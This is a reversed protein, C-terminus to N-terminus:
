YLSVNPLETRSISPNDLVDRGCTLTMKSLEPRKKLEFPSIQKWSKRVGGAFPVAAVRRGCVLRQRGCAEELLAPGQTCVETAGSNGSPTLGRISSNRPQVTPSRKSM